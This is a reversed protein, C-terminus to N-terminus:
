DWYKVSEDKHGDATYIAKRDIIKGDLDIQYYVTGKIELKDVDDIYHGPYNEQIKTTVVDPLDEKQIDQKFKLLQGEPNFLASFDTEKIEFDVEYNGKKKEWEVDIANTFEQSFSNRVLSPVKSTQIDEDLLSCSMLGIATITLALYKM